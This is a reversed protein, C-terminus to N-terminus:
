GVKRKGTACEYILSKKAAVLDDILSQQESIISDIEKSENDLFGTIADMEQITGPLAIKHTKVEDYNLGQRVGSGMGYFGKNLDFAHLVYYIFRSLRVNRPRLTTYASTIIGDEQVQGVRLSTHDNQLDTLRLVIDGSRVCNYGEFSEPLLGDSTNIDKEVIRGHSLSLLNQSRMGANKSKVEECLQFLLNMRWSQPCVGAWEVGGEKVPVQPDLGKTVVRTIISQGLLRYDEITAKADAIISDISSRKSNLYSAIGTQVNYDPVPVYIKKMDNWGTTWLDAVIGHGVRYFEDAFAETKCLFNLYDSSFRHAPRLVTNILSVSGDRESVGCSGRRDSRSNIAFDGKMVLKRNDGDDTKAATELRPLVGQMTVSLPPYDKDSCKENRLNFLAGLRMCAWTDPITGIWEIGSDKM